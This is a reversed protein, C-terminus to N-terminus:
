ESAKRAEDYLEQLEARLGEIDATISELRQRRRENYVGTPAENESREAADASFGAARLSNIAALYHNLM